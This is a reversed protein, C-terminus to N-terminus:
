IRVIKKTITDWHTYDSHNSARLEEIYFDKNSVDIKYDNLQIARYMKKYEKWFTYDEKTNSVEKLRDLVTSDWKFHHVQVFGSGDELINKKNQFLYM